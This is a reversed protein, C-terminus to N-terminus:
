RRRRRLALLGFLALSGLPAGNPSANCACGGEGDANPDGGEGTEGGATGAEGGEEGTPPDPVEVDGVGVAVVDSRGILGAYDEAVAVLEYVGADPFTAGAFTYPAVQDSVGIDQGNIELRVEKIGWGTDVASIEINLTAPLETFVDGYSPNTIDVVPPEEDPVADFGDGCTASAGNAPTGDCWPSVWEGHGVGPEAAYFGQCAGTPNWTGDADHCPTLDFGTRQEVWPVAGQMLSHTGLGGCAGSVTSAIGWAHWSGDPFRVFSPGGSDGSCVSPQGSGGVTGINMSENIGNTTTLAWRKTGAGSTGQNNGFGVIAVEAGPYLASTECGFVIPTIPLDIAEDLKCFAWDNPQDSAVGSYGPNTECFAPTVTRATALDEGFRIKTNFAGCHAAYMIVQPHVLTGTCLSGGNQVAVATPWACGEVPTGGFIRPTQGDDDRDPVGAHAPTSSAAVLAFASAGLLASLSLPLCRSM